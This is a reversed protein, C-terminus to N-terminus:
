CHFCFRLLGLTYMIHKGIRFYIMIYFYWTCVLVTIVRDLISNYQVCWRASQPLPYILRRIWFICWVDRGSPHAIPTKTTIKSLMSRTILAGCPIKTLEATDHYCLLVDFTVVSGLVDNVNSSPLMNVLWWHYNVPTICYALTIDVAGQCGGGPVCVMAKKVYPFSTHCLGRTRYQRFYSLHRWWFLNNCM